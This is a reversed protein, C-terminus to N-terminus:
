FGVIIPAVSGYDPNNGIYAIVFSALGPVADPEVNVLGTSSVTGINLIEFGPLPYNPLEWKFNTIASLVTGTRANYAQANFQQSGGPNITAILPSIIVVTDPNVTLNAEGIIGKTVARIKTEGIKLGTVL